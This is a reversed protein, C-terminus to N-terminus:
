FAQWVLMILAAIIAWSAAALLCVFAWRFPVPSTKCTGNCAALMYCDSCAYRDRPADIM